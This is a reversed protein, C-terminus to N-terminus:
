PAKPDAMMRFSRGVAVVECIGSITSSHPRLVNPAHKRASSEAAPTAFDVKLYSTAKATYPPRQQSSIWWDVQSLDTVRYKGAQDIAYNSSSRVTVQRFQGPPIPADPHASTLTAAVLLRRRTLYRSGPPEQLQQRARALVLPTPEPVDDRLTKLVDIENM